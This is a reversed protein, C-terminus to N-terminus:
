ALPNTWRLGPFRAFDRDTTHLVGGYEITLAALQADTVLPGRAQGDIMVRRLIAWHGEGPALLRVNPQEYWQDVIRAARDLTFRDGPLRPNTVIRLFATATQWPVGVPTGGSLVREIWRRARTHHTSTSDYAYLLINADIVIM